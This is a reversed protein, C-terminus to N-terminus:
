DHTMEKFMDYTIVDKTETHFSSGWVIGKHGANIRNVIKLFVFGSKSHKEKWQTKWLGPAPWDFGEKNFFNVVDCTQRFTNCRILLEQNM